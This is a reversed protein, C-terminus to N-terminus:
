SSFIKVGRLKEEISDQIKLRDKLFMNDKQSLISLVLKDNYELRNSFDDLSM